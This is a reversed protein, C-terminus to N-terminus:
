FIFKSGIFTYTTQTYTHTCKYVNAELICMFTSFFFAFTTDSIFTSRRAAYLNIHNCGIALPSNWHPSLSVLGGVFGKVCFLIQFCSVCSYLRLLSQSYLWGTVLGVPGHSSALEQCKKHHEAINTCLIRDESLTWGAVSPSLYLSGYDFMLCVESLRTSSHPNSHFSSSPDLVGCVSRCLWSVQVWHPSVHDSFWWGFFMCPRSSPWRCM